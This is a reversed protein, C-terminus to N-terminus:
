SLSGSAEEKEPNNWQDDVDNCWHIVTKCDRCLVVHDQTKALFVSIVDKHKCDM